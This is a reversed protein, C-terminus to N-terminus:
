NAHKYLIAKVEEHYKPHSKLADILECLVAQSPVYGDEERNLAFRPKGIHALEGDLESLETFTGPLIDPTKEAMMHIEHDYEQLRVSVEDDLKLARCFLDAVIWTIHVLGIYDFFKCFKVVIFIGPLNLFQVPYNTAIMQSTLQAFIVTVVGGLIGPKLFVDRFGSPFPKDTFPFNEMTPMSTLEAAIFVTFIVLIQRGIIFSMVSEHDSNESHLKAARPYQDKFTADTHKNLDVICVLAGELLLLLGLMILLLILGFWAPLFDFSHAFASEGALIGYVVIFTAFLTLCGSGFFRIYRLGLFLKDKHGNKLVFNQEQEVMNQIFKHERCAVVLV